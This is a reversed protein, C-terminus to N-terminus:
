AASGIRKINGFALTDHAQHDLFNEHAIVGDDNSM